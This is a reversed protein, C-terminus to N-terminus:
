GVNEKACKAMTPSNRSISDTMYFNEIPNQLDDLIFDYSRGLDPNIIGNPGACNQSFVPNMQAMAERVEALSSPLALGLLQGLMSFTEWEPKAQGLPPIAMKAHQVRGELNVFTGDKETYAPAPLIVDAFRASKDGHHGLYIIKTSDRSAAKTLDVEDAGLLMLVDMPENLMQNVTKGGSSTTPLFGIDLGGVRSAARQLINYGNWGDEGEEERIFGFKFGLKKAYYTVAKADERCMAGSGIILMPNKFSGLVECFPHSNDAIQKILWPSNGLYKYDYHLDVKQGILAVKLGNRVVAKRIRANLMPAEHKPNSDIILCFDAQEIGAITTNFIYEARSEIDSVGNGVKDQRCDYNTSGLQELLIRATFMTEVDVMDGAIAGIKDPSAKKILDTIYTYAEQWSVEQLKGNKKIMPTDLRQYKLGDCAFRTKDSIWEENIDEHIRPLVRMVESGRSDIRINSGVADHVDISETKTLEWPRAKFSYPKSTLAGVPCLDIINGSLESTISKEIFTSIEMGEGRDIAGLENTGAIDELFRVCRTCHICRNMFTKILPGMYKDEVARKTEHYRNNGRGYKLSQDQLDCEGAQDCIPCDLPHNILMFEMVGQRDKQVEPTNTSIVMGETIPQACSAVPKPIKEIRVLCMRCNGAIELREHYCFRPIEAGAAECAQLVTYHAPVEINKGDVTVFTM